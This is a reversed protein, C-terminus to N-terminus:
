PTPAASSMCIGIANAKNTLVFADQRIRGEVLAGNIGPPDIHIKYDTLKVPAVTAIANTILFNMNAPLYTSPVKVVPMGDVEGVQGTLAIATAADGRKVFSDDLKLYNFFAPTVVLVRGGAPAFDEDLMASVELVTSYANSASATVSYKANGAGAAMKAFRYTDVYPIVVQEIERALAPAASMVNLTDQESKRDITFTFSKDDEVKLNQVSNQLEAPTGYRSSGTLSYNNLAVTPVSYVSVTEVGVWSYENNVLGQTYSRRAFMEDVKPSFTSAYNIAM